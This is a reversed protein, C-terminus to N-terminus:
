AVKREDFRELFAPNGVLIRTYAELALSTWARIWDCYHLNPRFRDGYRVQAEHYCGGSCLSRVWCTRCDTRHDLHGKVLHESRKASDVGTHVDGFDHDGSGAFRHCLGIEGGPAVGLLGLGAGCPYAKSVGKHIEGLVDSLNSFGLYRGDIAADVYREALDAFQALLIDFGEGDIAYDLGSSSTVPAFGVEYFGMEDILHHFIRPVDITKATLTVRAGIPRTKYISLLEKIRPAVVDYSGLGRGFVRMSDQVDRPGDISVTVGIRNDALWQSIERTLLTANTTLSFDIFKGEEAARRRAYEVTPRIVKFNLLTEGGFFTVQLRRNHGSEAILTDVARRATEEDMIQPAAPSELRDEGYEYCYRCSLNCSNTVNLVITSLPPPVPPSALEALPVDPAGDRSVAGLSALERLAEIAEKSSALEGVHKPGDSLRDLISRVEGDLEVVISSPVLFAFEREGANFRRLENARVLTM